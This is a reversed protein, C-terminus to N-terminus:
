ERKAAAALRSPSTQLGPCDLFNFQCQELEPLEIKLLDCGYALTLTRFWTAFISSQNAKSFMLDHGYRFPRHRKFCAGGDPNFNYLVWQLARQVVPSAANRIHPNRIAIRVLPDMADIDECASSHIERLNFGGTHNQLRSLSEFAQEVYPIERGEYWHLLWFHYGAQVGDSLARRSDLIGYDWLATRPNCRQAIGVLLEDIAEKFAFQGLFDRAYQMAAGYNLIAKSSFSIRSGWDLQHLWTRVKGPTDLHEIFRLPYRPRAGLAHLSMLALLTLHRWGWWDETEAIDNSLLSDRFLGDTCQYSAIHRAWQDREEPMLENLDGLLHRLLAAFVSAYILPLDRGNGYRYRGYPEADIRLNEVYGLAKHRTTNIADVLSPVSVQELSHAYLRPNRSRKITTQVFQKIKRLDLVTALRSRFLRNLKEPVPSLCLLGPRLSVPFRGVQKLWRAEINDPDYFLALDLEEQWRHEDYSERMLVKAWRLHYLAPLRRDRHPLQLQAPNGIISGNMSKTDKEIEDFIRSLQLSQSYDRKARERGAHAIGQREAEHTLYYRIKVAAEEIDRFCVIEKDVDFLEEIGPIYDCLLFGGSM